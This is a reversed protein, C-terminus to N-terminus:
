ERRRVLVIALEMRDIKINPKKLMSCISICAHTPTCIGEVYMYLTYAVRIIIIITHVAMIYNIYSLKCNNVRLYHSTCISSMCRKTGKKSTKILNPYSM